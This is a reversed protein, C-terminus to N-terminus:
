DEIYEGNGSEEVILGKFLLLLVYDVNEHYNGLSENQGNKGSQNNKLPFRFLKLM